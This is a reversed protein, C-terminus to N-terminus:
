WTEPELPLAVSVAARRRRARTTDTGTGGGLGLRTGGKSAWQTAGLTLGGRRERGVV